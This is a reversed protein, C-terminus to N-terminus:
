EHEPGLRAILSERAVPLSGGGAPELMSCSPWLCCGWCLVQCLAPCIPRPSPGVILIKEGLVPRAGRRVFTIDVRPSREVRERAPDRLRAAYLAARALSVYVGIPWLRVRSPRRLSRGPRLAFCEAFGASTRGRPASVAAPSTRQGLRGIAGGFRSSDKATRVRLSLVFEVLGETRQSRLRRTEGANGECGSRFAFVPPRSM